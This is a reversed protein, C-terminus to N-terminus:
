RERGREAWGGEAGRGRERGRVQAVVQVRWTKFVISGELSGFSQSAQHDLSFFFEWLAGETSFPWPWGPKRKYVIM